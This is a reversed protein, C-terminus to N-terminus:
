GGSYSPSCAHAVMGPQNKTYIKLQEALKKRNKTSVPTKSSSRLELLVGAEAEWLALIVPTLWWAWGALEVKFVCLFFVRMTRDDSSPTESSLRSLSSWITNPAM